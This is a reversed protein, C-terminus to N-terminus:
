TRFYIVEISNLPICIEAQDHKETGYVDRGGGGDYEMVYGSMNLCIWSDTIDTINGMYTGYASKIQNESYDPYDSSIAISPM